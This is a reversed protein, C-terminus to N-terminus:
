KRAVPHRLVTKMKEPSTKRLDSLYIEHHSRKPGLDESLGHEAMYARMKGVSDPESSFPGVHLMQVCLGEEYINLGARSFDLDPKKKAAQEAARGFVAETVFDPQRIMVTWTWQNRDPDYGGGRSDWLGELPPVVYEFYGEPPAASLKSMKISYTIAYLIEVAEKYLTGEPAGEGNVMIFRIPPVEILMPEPKPLYLEKYKKKYDLKETM